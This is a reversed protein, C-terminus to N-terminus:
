TLVAIKVITQGSIKENAVRRVVFTRGDRLLTDGVSVTADSAAIFYLGPKPAMAIETDDLYTRMVTSSLPLVIAQVRKNGNLMVDEGFRVVKRAIRSSFSM